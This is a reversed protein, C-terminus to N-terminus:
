QNTDIIHIKTLEKPTLRWNSNQDQLPCTDQWNFIQLHILSHKTGISLEQYQSWYELIYTTKLTFISILNGLFKLKRAPELRTFNDESPCAPPGLSPSSVDSTKVRTSWPAGDPHQGLHRGPANSPAAPCQQACKHYNQLKYSPVVLWAWDEIQLQPVRIIQPGYTRLCESM